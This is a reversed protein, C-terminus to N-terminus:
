EIPRGRLASLARVAAEEEAFGILLEARGMGRPVVPAFSDQRTGVFTRNGAWRYDGSEDAYFTLDMPITGVEFQYVDTLALELDGHVNYGLDEFYPIEVHLDGDEDTVIIEGVTPDVYTGVLEAHDTEDMPFPPATQAAPLVEARTMLEVALQGFNDGYGNSLISISMRQEPLVYTASTFALTNGGHMWLPIDYYGSGLHAGDIVMWGYGYTQAEYSPYMRAYGTTMAERRDDSLVAPDGDIFFGGFAAMNEATSWVLGAPRVFGNDAQDEMPIRGSAYEADPYYPVFPETSILSYGTGIAFDGDAEVESKRAFTRTLGLPVFVDETLVDAWLREAAVETALGAISFNPNSYNWLAGAPAMAWETAAFVGFARDHLEADAPADDWPTYDYLAGQHSILHHLTTTQDWDPSEVLELGPIAVSVVDTRDLTGAEEQQLLALATMKKTDSGIQFLTDRGPPVDLEPDAVGFTESYVIDGDLWVAVQVGTANGADLGAAAAAALETLDQESYPSEIAIDTDIDTESVESDGSDSGTCAMLSWLVMRM